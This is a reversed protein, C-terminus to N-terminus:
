QMWVEVRETADSDGGPPSRDGPSRVTAGFGRVVGVRLGRARLQSAVAEAREQAVASADTRAAFADSFGLLLVSRGALDPHDMMAVVRQVDALARADLRDNDQNFRFDLSM